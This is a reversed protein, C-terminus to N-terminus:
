FLEALFCSARLIYRRYSSIFLGQLQPPPYLCVVLSCRYAASLCMATNNWTCLVKHPCTSPPLLHTLVQAWRCGVGCTMPSMGSLRCCWRRAPITETQTVPLKIFTLCTPRRDLLLFIWCMIQGWSSFHISFICTQMRLRVPGDAAM